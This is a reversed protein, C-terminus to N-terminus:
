LVCFRIGTVFGVERRTHSRVLRLIWHGYCITGETGHASVCSVSGLAWLM